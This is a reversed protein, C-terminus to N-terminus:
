MRVASAANDYVVWEGAGLANTLFRYDVAAGGATKAILSLRALSGNATSQAILAATSATQVTLDNEITVAGDLGKLYRLNDKIHTNMKSATVIESVSWTAPATWAM